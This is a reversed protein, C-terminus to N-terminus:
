RVTPEWVRWPADGAAWLDNLMLADKYTDMCDWFGDHRFAVLEGDAALRELPERELVSDAELSDLVGPEFCFFGGNVWHQSRPKERFGRIRGDAGIEAVGFQLEPRVVTVTALAAHADHHACL